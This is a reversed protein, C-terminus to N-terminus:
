AEATASCFTVLAILTEFCGLDEEGDRPVAM